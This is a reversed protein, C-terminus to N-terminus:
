QLILAGLATCLEKTPCGFGHTFFPIMKSVPLERLLEKQFLLAWFQDVLARGKSGLFGWPDFLDKQKHNKMHIM